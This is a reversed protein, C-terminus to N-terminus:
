AVPGVNPVIGFDNCRRCGAKIKKGRCKPCVTATGFDIRDPLKTFRYTEPEPQIPMPTRGELTQSKALWKRHQESRLHDAWISYGGGCEECILWVISIKGDADKRLPFDRGVDGPTVSWATENPSSVEPTPTEDPERFAPPMSSVDFSERSTLRYQWIDREPNTHRREEIPHGDDDRLERLRRLGESGGVRENAIEPGNVWENQRSMLLQLVLEKRTLTSKNV